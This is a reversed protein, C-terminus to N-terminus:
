NRESSRPPVRLAALAFDAAHAGFARLWEPDPETTGRQLLVSQILPQALFAYIIQGLTSIVAKMPDVESRFEGTRQAQRVLEVFHQILEGVAQRMEPLAHAADHDLIERLMLRPLTPHQLLAETYVRAFTSIADTATRASMIPPSIAAALYQIRRRLVAHYLAEKDAYYYYLLATNVTAKEGIHKITTAAFGQRGFVEEAADLIKNSTEQESVPQSTRSRSATM